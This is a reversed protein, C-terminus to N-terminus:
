VENRLFKSLICAKDLVSIDIGRLIENYIHVCSTRSTIVEEITLNPDCLQSICLYHVPYIIYQIFFM